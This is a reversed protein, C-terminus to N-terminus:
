LGFRFREVAALDGLGGVFNCIPTEASMVLVSGKVNLNRMTMDTETERM